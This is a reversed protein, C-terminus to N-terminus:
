KKDVQKILNNKQTLLNKKRKEPKTKTEAGILRNSQAKAYM